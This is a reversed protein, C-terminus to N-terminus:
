AEEQNSGRAWSLFVGFVCLCAAFFFCYQIASQLAPYVDPSIRVPGLFLALMMAVLGMSALQGWVRMASIASAARGFDSKTVAGMIANANPTTFLSFGVGTLALCLVVGVMESGASLFSFVGLGVGTIGIGLSALLKPEKRDALRGAWPSLVTMIAPQIMMVLGAHFPNLGKLYQLFLSVLVVNSFTATYILLSALCSMLFMRNSYFLAADFIPYKQGLEYRFFVVLGVLGLIALSVGTSAPIKTLGITLVVISAGYILFGFADFYGQEQSRWEKKIKLLGLFLVVAALPLHLLFTARWSTYQILIGGLVPGLTLGLYIASVTYGIATGRSKPPFVSSVIAVNTAFVMGAGIGQGVRAILLHIASTSLSAYVSTVVIAFTGILYIRKRGYMDALRGFGLVCAASALLYSMPLWSLTIADLDLDRAIEPLAVNVGTLMMATSVSNLMVMAVTTREIVSM